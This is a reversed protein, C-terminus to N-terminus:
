GAIDTFDYNMEPQPEQLFYGQIFNVGMGWLISLSNADKVFQAITFKGLESAQETIQKITEQNQPNDALDNMFSKDLRIYDADIH